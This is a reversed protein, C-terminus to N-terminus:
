GEKETKIGLCANMEDKTNCVDKREKSDANMVVFRDGSPTHISYSFIDTSDKWHIDAPSKFVNDGKFKDYLSYARKYDTLTGQAFIGISFACLMM